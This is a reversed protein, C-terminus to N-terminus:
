CMWFARTRATTVAAPGQAPEAYAVPTSYLFASFVFNNGGCILEEM